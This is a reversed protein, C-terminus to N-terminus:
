SNGQRPHARGLTMRLDAALKVSFKVFWLAYVVVHVVFVNALGVRWALAVM